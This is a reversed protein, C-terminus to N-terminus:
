YGSVRSAIERGIEISSTAAPSPANLVHIGNPGDIIAFDDVLSGDQNLAQARVGAAAPVLDKMEISPALNQLSKLFLERSWSRVTEAFGEKYYRSALRWFGPFFLTELADALDIDFKSYGERKLALVANPGAHIHGHISRTLHVGLFPFNPNPVPYVLGKILDNKEPVLEFYEGRFPVIKSPSNEGAMHAVRDSQLGACNVVFKCELERSNTSILVKRANGGSSRRIAKVENNFFIKGGAAEIKRVFTRCVEVYDVIGTSPVRIGALCSINPEIEQVAPAGLWSVNLENDVGRQYLMRLNPLEDERTAVIVKGCIEFPISNEECFQVMSKNGRRAFSAKLSGPKYYIGSHIVGSNRGTQHAAPHSEKELVAISASKFREGIAMATALGVIGGGIVVFDFQNEESM